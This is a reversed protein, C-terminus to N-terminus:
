FFYQIIKTGEKHTLGTLPVLMSSTPLAYKTQLIKRDMQYMNVSVPHNTSFNQLFIIGLHILINHHFGQHHTPMYYAPPKKQQNCRNSYKKGRTHQRYGGM